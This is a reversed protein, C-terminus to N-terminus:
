HTDYLTYDVAFSCRRYAALFSVHCAVYRIHFLVAWALTLWRVLSCRVSHHSLRLTDFRVRLQRSM